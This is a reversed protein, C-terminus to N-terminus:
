RPKVAQSHERCSKYEQEYASCPFSFFTRSKKPVVVLFMMTNDVNKECYIWFVAAVSFFILEVGALVLVSLLLSLSALVLVKCDLGHTAPFLQV